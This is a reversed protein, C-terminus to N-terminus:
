DFGVKGKEDWGFDEKFDYMCNFFLVWSVSYLKEM